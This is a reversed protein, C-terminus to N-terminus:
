GPPIPIKGKRKRLPAHKDLIGIFMKTWLYVIADPNDYDVLDEWYVQGLDDLFKEKNFWKLQRSEFLKPSKKIKGRFKRVCYILYHDNVRVKYIGSEVINGPQTTAAHDILTKTKITERTPKDILQKFGFGDYLEKMHVRDSLLDSNTDGLFIIEKGSLELYSLINEMELLKDVTSSPPRYWILVFFSQAVKPIIKICILELTNEPLTDVVEYNFSSHIYIAVGGGSENRDKRVISYGDISIINDPLSPSVKTENIGMIQIGKESVIERLEDVKTNLGNINLSAIVM